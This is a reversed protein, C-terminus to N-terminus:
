IFRRCYLLSSQWGIHGNLFHVLGAAAAGVMYYSIVSILTRGCKRVPKDETLGIITADGGFQLQLAHDRRWCRSRGRDTSCVTVVLTYAGYAIASSVTLQAWNFVLHV